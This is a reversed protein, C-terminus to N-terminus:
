RRRRLRMGVALAAASSAAIAAPALSPQPSEGTQPVSSPASTRTASRASSGTADAAPANETSPVDEETPANEKQEEAPDEEWAATIIANTTVHSFDSDWGVFRYGKRTPDAPPTAASGFAVSQTSLVGGLGDEFRVTLSAGDPDIGNALAKIRYCAGCDYLDSWEDGGAPLFFSQGPDIQVRVHYYDMDSDEEVGLACSADFSLVVAYREGPGVTIPEELEIAKYNWYETHGKTSGTCIGSTPCTPNALGVYVSVDFDFAEEDITTVGAAGVEIPGGTTNVFVNAAKTGADTRFAGHESTRVSLYDATGDYQFNYEYTDAPQMDFSAAYHSDSEASYYSMYFFGGEHVDEGWSNQVIWAGDGEPTTIARAEEDSLTRTEGTEDTYTLPNGLADMTHTFNEAPYSDDWGVVTVSHNAGAFRDYNYFSRGCVYPKETASNIEECNFHAYTDSIYVPVVAAGHDLVIRKIQEHTACYIYRGEQLTACHCYALQDDYPRYSEDWVGGTSDLYDTIRNLPANEEACAGSYTALHMLAFIPNGGVLWGGDASNVDGATNGLPDDQRHYLFYGLHGPSLIAPAGTTEYTEKAYSYEAATTSSFAWCMDAAGQDKVTIGSAWPQARSDYSTPFEDESQAGLDSDDSAPAREVDIPILGLGHEELPSHQPADAGEGAASIATEEATAVLPLLCCTLLASLCCAAMTRMLKDPAARM